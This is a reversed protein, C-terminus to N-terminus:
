VTGADVLADLLSAAEVPAGVELWIADPLLELRFEFFACCDKERRALDVASLIVSDGGILKMRVSTDSRIFQAVNTTLFQQWEDGRTTKDAASLTCTIPIQTM